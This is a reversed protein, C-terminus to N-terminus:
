LQSDIPFLGIIGVGLRQLFTTDPETTYRTEEGGVSDVWVLQQKGDPRAPDKPELIVEYAQKTLLRDVGQQLVNELEPSQILLGMETNIQVSRPDLNM